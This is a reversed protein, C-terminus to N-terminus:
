HQGRQERWRLFEDFLRETDTKADETARHEPKGSRSVSGTSRVGAKQAQVTQLWQEAPKFRRWDPLVAALNVERWKPHRLPAQFASVRSLFAETFNGLLQYRASKEPWNYAILAAGLAVTELREGAPILSPYDEHTFVAPLYPTAEAPFPVQVLHFGGDRTLREVIAAPKPALFLTAAVRGQRMEAVAEDLGLYVESVPVRLASLLDRAIDASSGGDDGLNVPKDILDSVQRIDERAILHLEENFLKAIYVLKSRLDGLEQTEQLRTLLRENAITMDVGPLALVDRIDHVGGRGVIPLVRLALEGNPGTKQGGTLVRAIESVLPLVGGESSGAVIGVTNPDRAPATQKVSPASAPTQATAPSPLLEALILLAAALAGTWIPSGGGPVM